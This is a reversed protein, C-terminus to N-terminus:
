GHRVEAADKPQSPDIYGTQELHGPGVFVREHTPQPPAVALLKDRWRKLNRMIPGRDLQKADPYQKEIYEIALGM